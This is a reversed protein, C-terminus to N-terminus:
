ITIAPCARGLLFFSFIIIASLTNLLCANSIFLHQNKTLYFPLHKQADIMPTTLLMVCKPLRDNCGSRGERKEAKVQSSTRENTIPKTKRERASTTTQMKPSPVMRLPTMATTTPPCHTFRWKRCRPAWSTRSPVHRRVARASTGIKSRRSACVLHCSKRSRASLWESTSPTAPTRSCVWQTSHNWEKNNEILKYSILERM